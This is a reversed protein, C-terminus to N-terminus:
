HGMRLAMETECHRVDCASVVFSIEKERNVSNLFLFVSPIIEDQGICVKTLWAKLNWLTLHCNAKSVDWRATRQPVTVLSLLTLDNGFHSMERVRFITFKNHTDTVVDHPKWSKMVAIRGWKLQLTVYNSTVYLGCFLLYTTSVV